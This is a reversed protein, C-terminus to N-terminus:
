PRLTGARLEALLRRERDKLEKVREELVSVREQLRAVLVELRELDGWTTM